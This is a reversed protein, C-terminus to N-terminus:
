PLVLDSVVTDRFKIFSARPLPKTMGDAKNSKSDTWIIKFNGNGDECHDRLFHHAIGIHRTFKSAAHHNALDIAPQNDVFICIPRRVFQGPIGEIINVIWLIIKVINSLAMYEVEPDSIM